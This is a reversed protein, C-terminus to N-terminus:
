IESRTIFTEVSNSNAADSEDFRNERWQITIVLNNDEISVSGNGGPLLDKLSNKWEVKDFHAMASQSCSSTTCNTGGTPSSNITMSYGGGVAEERNARARDLMDYALFTAQTRLYASHNYSLAVTQLGALGLLGIALVLLSILVELLTFGQEQSHSKIRRKQHRHKSIFFM